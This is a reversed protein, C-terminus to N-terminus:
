REPVKMMFESIKARFTAVFGAIESRTAAPLEHERAAKIGAADGAAYARNLGDTAFAADFAAQIEDDTIGALRARFWQAHALPVRRHIRAQSQIVGNFKLEVSESSVSKIFVPDKQYGALVFKHRPGDAFTAGLDSIIFWNETGQKSKVRYVKCNKPQTDWNNVMVEFILLGSLQEAPVGPNHAEDWTMDAGKKDKLPESAEDHRKFRAGGPFTGDPLIAGKERGLDTDADIGEIKGSGVYYGEAAGYGLAWALRPAAIDSHVEEGFKATWRVKRHDTVKAKPSTALRDKDDPEFHSYPPAPLRSLPDPAASAAGFYVRRPSLEGRDEWMKLAGAPLGPLNTRSGPGAETQVAAAGGEIVLSHADSETGAGGTIAGCVLGLIAIIKATLKMNGIMGNSICGVYAMLLEGPRMAM